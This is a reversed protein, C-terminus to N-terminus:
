KEVSAFLFWTSMVCIGFDNSTSMEDLIAMQGGVECLGKIKFTQSGNGSTELKVLLNHQKFFDEDIKFVDTFEQKGCVNEYEENFKNFEDMSKITLDSPHDEQYYNTHVAASSIIQANEKQREELIDTKTTTQASPNQCGCLSLAVLLSLFIAKYRM